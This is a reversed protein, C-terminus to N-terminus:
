LAPFGARGPVHQRSFTDGPRYETGPEVESRAVGPLLARWWGRCLSHGTRRCVLRPFLEEKFPGHEVVIVPKDSKLSNNDHWHRTREMMVPLRSYELQKKALERLHLREKKTIMYDPM